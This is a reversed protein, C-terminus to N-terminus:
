PRLPVVENRPHAILYHQMRHTEGCIEVRFQRPAEPSLKAPYAAVGNKGMWPRMPWGLAACVQPCVVTEISAALVWKGVCAVQRQLAAYVEAAIEEASPYRTVVDLPWLQV